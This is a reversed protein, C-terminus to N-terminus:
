SMQKKDTVYKKIRRRRSAFDISYEILNCNENFAIMTDM